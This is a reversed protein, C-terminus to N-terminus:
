GKNLCCKKYKKGSGCPCPDNRGLKSGPNTVPKRKGAAMDAYKGRLAKLVSGMERGGGLRGEGELYALFAACLRPVREHVPGPLSLPAVSELFAVSLDEQELEGPGRGGHACAAWLLQNLASPAHARLEATPNPVADSLADSQCFDGVWNEITERLNYNGATLSPEESKTPLIKVGLRVVDSTNGAHSGLGQAILM